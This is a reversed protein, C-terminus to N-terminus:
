LRVAVNDILRTGGLRAAVLLRAEGHEPVEGLTRDRLALYDVDLGVLEAAAAELVAQSGGRAAKRGAFLARALGVARLRDDASLYRNRSSLALGDPERVTRVPQVTVPMNLDAVMQEILCYQQYDKEGFHAVAPQVLGFFKAVVTLVGTFHGFRSAGELVAGLPGPDVTIGVPGHPYVDQGAPMWVVDVGEATCLELDADLTRPYKSLDENPGFQTPNVFITVVTSGGVQRASRILAAHGAHLAGMTPVLNVPGTLAARADVFEVRSRVIRPTM